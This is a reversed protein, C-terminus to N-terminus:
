CSFRKKNYDIEIKELSGSFILIRLLLGKIYLERTLIPDVKRYYSTRNRSNEFFFTDKLWIQWDERINKVDRFTNNYGTVPFPFTM